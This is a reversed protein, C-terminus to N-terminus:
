LEGGEVKHHTFLNFENNNEGTPTDLDKTM